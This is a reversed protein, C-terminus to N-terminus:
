LNKEYISKWIQFFRTVRGSNCRGLNFIDELQEELVGLIDKFDKYIIIDALIDSCDMDNEIQYNAGKPVKLDLIIIEVMDISSKCKLQNKLINFMNHKEEISFNKISVYKNKLQGDFLHVDIFQKCSM